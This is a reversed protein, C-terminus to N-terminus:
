KFYSEIFDEREEVDDLYKTIKNVFFEEGWPQQEWYYQLGIQWFGQPYRIFGKMLKLEEEKVEFAKNYSDIILDAKKIDWKNNKMTRIILSALDHIHTDLICYDFDILNIEGDKDILVNHHAYDHHCFGGSFIEKFMLDYYDAEKINEIAKYGIDLQEEIAKLYIYDFESKYAKQSIRKKFDLIEDCRTNFVKIWNGWGIRAKMHKNLKFGKSYKHLEGLKESVKTLEIPNDYNSVRSPVWKTLYAYKNEINIFDLNESTKLIDPITKFGKNQLHKIASLIFYFHKFEYNIIKICYDNNDSTIKFTNKVKEVELVKIEYNSEVINRIIERDM